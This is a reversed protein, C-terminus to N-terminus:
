IHILSLNNSLSVIAVGAGEIDNGTITASAQGNENTLASDVSLVGADVTFDVIENEIANGDGDNLTILVQAQEDSKFQNTSIGNVSMQISLMSLKEIIQDGIFEYDVSTSLSLTSATLTGASLTAETNSIEISAIGSDNTLKSDLSLIGLDTSLDVRINNLPESFQDTVTVQVTVTEDKDFSQKSESQSNLLIVSINTAESIISSTFEYDISASLSTTSASLTGAGLTTQTNMMEISAVGSDNTLKSDLSLTGLDASFDVRINNVPDGSADTITVQITVTEDKDFSQESESQSNLLIISITAADSTVSSAEENEGSHGNCASLLITSIVFLMSFLKNM